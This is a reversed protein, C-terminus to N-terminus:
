NNSIQFIHGSINSIVRFDSKSGYAPFPLNTGYGSSERKFPVQLLTGNQPICKSILIDVLWKGVASMSSFFPSDLAFTHSPTFTINAKRQLKVAFHRLGCPIWCDLKGLYLLAETCYCWYCNWILKKHFPLFQLIGQWKQGVILALFVSSNTKRTSISISINLANSTFIAYSLYTPKNKM